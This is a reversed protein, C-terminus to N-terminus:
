ISVQTGSTIFVFQGFMEKAAQSFVKNYDAQQDDTFLIISPIQKKFVPEIYDNSFFILTPLSVVSMWEEISGSHTYHIPSEDFTRFVALSNHTAGNQVACESSVHFYEFNYNTKAIENFREYM